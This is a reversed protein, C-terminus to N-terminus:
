TAKNSRAQPSPDNKAWSIHIGDTKIEFSTAAVETKEQFILLLALGDLLGIHKQVDGEAMVFSDEDVGQRNPFRLNALASIATALEEVPRLTQHYPPNAM